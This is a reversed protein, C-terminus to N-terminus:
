GSKLVILTIQYSILCQILLNFKIFYRFWQKVTQTQKNSTSKNTITFEIIYM